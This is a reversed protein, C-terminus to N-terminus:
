WEEEEEIWDRELTEKQRVPGTSLGSSASQDIARLARVSEEPNRVSMTADISEPDIANQHACWAKADGRFEFDVTKVKWYGKYQVECREECYKCDM